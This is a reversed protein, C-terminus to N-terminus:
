FYVCPGRKPNIEGMGLIKDGPQMLASYVQFNAPTGSLTQVNISWEESNLNFAQYIRKKCLTEVQDIYKNGEYYRKGVQGESYKNTLCSGLCEM